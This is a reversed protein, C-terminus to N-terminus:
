NMQAVSGKEPNLSQDPWSIRNSRAVDLLLWPSQALAGSETRVMVKVLLDRTRPGTVDLGYTLGGTRPLEIRSYGDFHIFVQGAPAKIKWHLDKRIGKDVVEFFVKVQQSYELSVSHRYSAVRDQANKGLPQISRYSPEWGYVPVDPMAIVSEAEEESQLIRVLSGHGGNSVAEGMAKLYGVNSFNWPWLALPTSAKKQTLFQYEMELPQAIKEIARNNESQSNALVFALVLGGLFLRPVGQIAWCIYTALAASAAYLFRADLPSNIGSVLLGSLPLLIVFIGTIILLWSHKSHQKIVGLVILLLIAILLFYSYNGLGFSLRITAGLNKLLSQFNFPTSDIRLGYGGIGELLLLRAITYIVAVTLIPWFLRIRQRFSQEPIFFLLGILPVFLEKCLSALAYFFAALLAYHLSKRRIAITFFGIAIWSFLLGYAYHGTMLMTGVAGTSPFTLFLLAALWASIRNFWLRLVMYSAVATIGIVTVLHFYHGGANLGFFPLGIEYFFANWPTFHAWSQIRLIEFQFFYEWPSYKTVFQLHPGDDFRWSSSFTSFLLFYATLLLSLPALYNSLFEIKRWFVSKNIFEEIIKSM